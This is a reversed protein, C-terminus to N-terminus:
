NESKGSDKGAQKGNNPEAVKINHANWGSVQILRRMEGFKEHELTFEIAKPLVRFADVKGDNILSDPPWRDRWTSNEDLFRLEIRKINALLRQRRPESEHARDMVQWYSRYLTEDELEYVVRQLHSRPKVAVEPNFSALLTLPDRWGTRSFELLTLANLNTCAYLRDGYEGRVPRSVIQSIDNEIVRQSKQLAQLIEARKEVTDKTKIGSTLTLAVGVGLISTVTIAILVEILTFGCQGTPWNKQKLECM